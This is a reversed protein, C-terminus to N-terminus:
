HRTLEIIGAGTVTIIKGAGIGGATTGAMDAATM